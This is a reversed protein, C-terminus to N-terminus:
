FCLLLLLACANDPRSCHSAIILLRRIASRRLLSAKHQCDTIKTEPSSSPLDVTTWALPVCSCPLFMFLAQCGAVQSSESTDEGMAAKEVLRGTTDVIIADLVHDVALGHKRLILGFGCGRLHGGVGITM